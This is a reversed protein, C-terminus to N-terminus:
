RMPWEKCLGCSCGPLCPLAAAAAGMPVWAFRDGPPAPVDAWDAWDKVVARFRELDAPFPQRPWVAVDVPRGPDGRVVLVTWQPLGALRNFTYRQGDGVAKGRGKAEILLFRGKIEVLGDIDTPSIGRPFCGRLCAWDWPADVFAKVSQITV